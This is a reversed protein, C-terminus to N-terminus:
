EGGRWRHRASGTGIRQGARDPTPRHAPVDRRATRAFLGGNITSSAWGRWTPGSFRWEEGGQSKSRRTQEYLRSCVVQLTPLVGGMPVAEPDLLREAIEGALGPDYSFNYGMEKKTPSEIAAVLGDANLEDLHFGRLRASAKASMTRRLEDEFLGKYETRLSILIKVGAPRETVARLLNMYDIRASEAEEQLAAQGDDPASQAAAGRAKDRLTFVEEAQDIVLLPTGPAADGLAALIQVMMEVSGSCADVFSERDERSTHQGLVADLDGFHDVDPSQKLKHVADFVAGAVERLPTLGSRVVIFTGETGALWLGTEGTELQPKLAARLLSSKGCGTRGHLM